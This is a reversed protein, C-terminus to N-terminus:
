AALFGIIPLRLYQIPNFGGTGSHGLGVGVTAELGKAHEILKQLTSSFQRLLSM